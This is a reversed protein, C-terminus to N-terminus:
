HKDAGSQYKKRDNALVKLISLLNANEPISSKGYHFNVFVFGGKKSPQLEAELDPKASVKGGNVSHIAALYSPGKPKVEKAVYKDAFDQANLFPDFDLGVIEDKVKSAADSDAKLAKYLPESFANKRKLLAKDMDKVDNDKHGPPIYWNYFDQVFKRCAEAEGAFAPAVFGTLPLVLTLCLLLKKLYPKM